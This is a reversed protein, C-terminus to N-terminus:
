ALKLGETEWMQLVVGSFTTIELSGGARHTELVRFSGHGQIPHAKWKKGQEGLGNESSLMMRIGFGSHGLTVCSSLPLALIQTWPTWSWLGREEVDGVVASSCSDGTIGVVRSASAPSNSSGPPCLNCHASIMGSCELRALLALNKKGQQM